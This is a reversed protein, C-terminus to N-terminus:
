GGSRAADVLAVDISRSLAVGIRGEASWAVSGGVEGVGPLDIIIPTGMPVPHGVEAMLGQESLNRIRVQRVDPEEGLRLGATVLTGTRLHARNETSPAEQGSGTAADHDYGNTM